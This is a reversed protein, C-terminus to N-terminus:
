GPWDVAPAESVTAHSGSGSNLGFLVLEVQGAGRATGQPVRSM